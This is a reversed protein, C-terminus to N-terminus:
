SLRRDSRPDSVDHAAHQGDDNPADLGELLGSLANAKDTLLRRREEYGTGRAIKRDTVMMQLTLQEHEVETLMVEITSKRLEHFSSSKAILGWLPNDGFLDDLNSSM